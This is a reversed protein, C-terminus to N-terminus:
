NLVTMIKFIFMLLLGFIVFVVSIRTELMNMEDIKKAEESMDELYFKGSVLNNCKVNLIIVISCILCFWSCCLILFSISFTMTNVVLFSGGLFIVAIMVISNSIGSSEKALIDLVKERM